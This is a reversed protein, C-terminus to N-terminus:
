PLAGEDIWQRVGNYQNRNLYPGNKPMKPIIGFGEQSLILNLTRIDGNNLQILLDNTPISLRYDILRSYDLLFDFPQDSNSHCGSTSGCKLLFLKYIHENYTLNSDPLVVSEDTPNTGSEKCGSCITIGIITSILLIKFIRNLLGFGKLNFYLFILLINVTTCV